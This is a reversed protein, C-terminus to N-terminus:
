RSASQPLGRGQLGMSWLPSFKGASSLRPPERRVEISRSQTWMASALTAAGGKAALSELVAAGIATEDPVELRPHVHLSLRTRGEREEEVLQYDLPGGGFRAPLVEELIRVM